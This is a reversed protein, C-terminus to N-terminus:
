GCKPLAIGISLSISIEVPVECALGWHRNQLYRHNQQDKVPGQTNRSIRYRVERAVNSSLIRKQAQHPDQAM